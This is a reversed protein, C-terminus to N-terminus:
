PPRLNKLEIKQIVGGGIFKSWLKLAGWSTPVKSKNCAEFKIALSILGIKPETEM